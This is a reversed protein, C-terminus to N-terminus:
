AVGAIRIVREDQPVASPEGGYRVAAYWVDAEAESMGSEILLTRFHVDVPLRWDRYDLLGLRQPYYLGDHFLSPGMACRRDPAPDSPGDWLFGEYLHLFPFTGGRIMFEAHDVDPLSGFLDYPLMIHADTNLLYKFGEMYEIEPLM